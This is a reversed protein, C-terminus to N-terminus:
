DELEIEDFVARGNRTHLSAEEVGRGQTLAEPGCDGQEDDGHEGDGDDDRDGHEGDGDDDGHEGHEDDGDERDGEDGGDDSKAATPSDCDIETDGTVDGTLTGGGALTITLVGDKFSAITGAHEDGDEIGDDDSDDDRPDLGARFEGRNKLGDHDQDRRAQKVKLSLGHKKEWRDPLRDNNRDVGRASASGAILLCATIALAAMAALKTRLM